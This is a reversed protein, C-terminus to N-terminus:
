IVGAAFLAHDKISHLEVTLAESKDAEFSREIGEAMSQAEQKWYESFEKSYGDEIGSLSDEYGEVENGESDLLVVRLWAHWWSDECWDKLQNFDALAARAAQEGKTGTKYPEADWGDRRAIKVAEQFDYFRKSRRDSCLIMEGSRKDRITWESVPGHGDNEEWPAGMFNDRELEVKFKNGKATTIIETHYANQM